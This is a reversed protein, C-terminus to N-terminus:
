ENKIITEIKQIIYLYSAILRKFMHKSVFCCITPLCIRLLIYKKKNQLDYALTRNITCIFSNECLVTM